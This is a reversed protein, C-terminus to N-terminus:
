NKILSLMKFNSFFLRPNCSTTIQSRHCRIYLPSPVKMAAEWDAVHEKKKSHFSFSYFAQWFEGYLSPFSIQTRDGNTKSFGKIQCSFTIGVQLVLLIMDSGSILAEEKNWVSKKYVILLKVLCLIFDTVITLISEVQLM